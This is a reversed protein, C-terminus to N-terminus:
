AVLTFIELANPPRPRGLKIKPKWNGKVKFWQVGDRDRYSKRDAAWVRGLEDEGKRPRRRVCPQWEDDMLRKFWRQGTEDTRYGIVKTGPWWCVGNEDKHWAMGGADRFWTLGNEDKHWFTSDPADDFVFWETTM